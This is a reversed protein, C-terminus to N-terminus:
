LQVGALIAEDSESDWRVRVPGLAKIWERDEPTLSTTAPHAVEKGSLRIVVPYPGPHALILNHLAVAQHDSLAGTEILVRSPASAPESEEVEELPETPLDVDAPPPPETSLDRPPMTFPQDPDYDALSGYRYGAKADVDIPPWGSIEWVLADRCFAYAEELPFGERVEFGLSDHVTLVFRLRDGLGHERIRRHARIIGMKMIQGCVGQIKTNVALRDGKNKIKRDPHEFEPLWRKWGFRTMVWGHRRAEIKTQEAWRRVAPLRAFYELLFADAEDVTVGLDEAVAPAGRGYLIAFNMTKGRRRQDKTVQEVPVGFILAATMAHVDMTKDRQWGEILSTEGAEGAMARYEIQSYDFDLWYWGPTAIVGDRVNVTYRSGDLLDFQLGEATMNQLNPKSSSFRGTETGLPDFKTHVRGTAPHVHKAYGELYTGLNKTIGRYTEITRVVPYQEALAKMVFKDTSPANTKPSRKLVPLGLGDPPESFLLAALQKPSDLDVEITKGMKESMEAMYDAQLKSAVARGEEAKSRFLDLDVLVGNQRMECIAPVLAIEIAYANMMGERELHKLVHALVRLTNSGDAAAYRWVKPDFPDLSAYDPPPPKKRGKAPTANPDAFASFRVVEIGCFEETLAKLSRVSDDGHEAGKPDWRGTAYSLMKVGVSTDHQVALRLGDKLCMRYDFTANHLAAGKGVKGELLPACIELVNEIPMQGPYIGELGREHAFPVYVGVGPEWSLCYGVTHKGERDWGCVDQEWDDIRNTETDFGFVDAAACRNVVDQLAGEQGARLVAYKSPDPQLIRAPPM